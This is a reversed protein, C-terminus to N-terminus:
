GLVSASPGLPGPMHPPFCGAPLCLGEGEEPLKTPTRTSSKSFFSQSLLSRATKLGRFHPVPFPPPVGASDPPLSGSADEPVGALFLLAGLLGLSSSSDPSSSGSGFLLFPSAPFGTVATSTCAGTHQPQGFCPTLSRAKLSRNEERVKTVRGATSPDSACSPIHRM